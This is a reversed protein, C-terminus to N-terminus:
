NDDYLFSPWGKFEELLINLHTLYRTFFINICLSNIVNPFFSEGITGDYEKWNDFKELVDNFASKLEQYSKYRPLYPTFDDFIFGMTKFSKKNQKYLYMIKNFYQDRTYNKEEQYSYRLFLYLVDERNEVQHMDTLYKEFENKLNVFFQERWHTKKFAEIIEEKNRGQLHKISM